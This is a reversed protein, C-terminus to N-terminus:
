PKILKIEVPDGIRSGSSLVLDYQNERWNLAGAGAGYYNGIDQWIWGDPIRSDAFRSDDIYLLYDATDINLKKISGLLGALVKSERTSEYRWTGLTPDAGPLIFIRGYLRKGSIKGQYGFKTQYRYEKGLLEFATVSTIIKQTSAPALGLQSNKDFIVEGSKADIVYLSSIAHKLQEDKEFLSYAKQLQQATTQGALETIFVLLILPFFLKKM